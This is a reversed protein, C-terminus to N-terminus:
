EGFCRACGTAGAATKKSLHARSGGGDDDDYHEPAAGSLLRLQEQIGILTVDVRHAAGFAYMLSFASESADKFYRSRRM